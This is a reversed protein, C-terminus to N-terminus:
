SLKEKIISRITSVAITNYTTNPVIIDAYAKSPEIFQKHMPKVTNQYRYLVKKLDHGREEIDRQLRRILREDSDAHVFIKLDLLERIRPNSLILIGEIIMVKKPTTLVTEATRNELAFSYVPQQITEEKKLAILHTILLDFDISKPHDFNVKNREKKSLHSLNNYYADQSIVGVEGKPLEDIIQKVVTTKGSGTGGAIGIIFM